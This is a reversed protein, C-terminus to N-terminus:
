ITLDDVYKVDLDDWRAASGTTGTSIMGVKTGRGVATIYDSISVTQVKVGGVWLSADTGVVRVELQQDATATGVGSGYNTPTSAVRKSITWGTGARTVCLHNAHDVALFGFNGGSALVNPKIKLSLLDDAEANGLLVPPSTALDILAATRGNLNVTERVGAKGSAIVGVATGSQQTLAWALGHTEEVGLSGGSVDARTFTDVALAIGSVPLGSIGLAAVPTSWDSQDAGSKGAVQVEIVTGSLGTITFTTDLLGGAATTMNVTTWLGGDERYQAVFETLRCMPFTWMATLTGSVYRASVDLPEHPISGTIASTSDNVTARRAAQWMARGLREVGDRAYHAEDTTAHGSGGGNPIGDAYAVHELTGQAAILAPRVTSYLLAPGEPVVGGAAWPADPDGVFTRAAGILGEYATLYAATTAGGDSEGQHWYFWVEPTLDPYTEALEALAATIHTQATTWLNPGPGPVYGVEWTGQGGAPQYLLGSGGSALNMAAVQTRPGLDRQMEDAIVHLVSIGPADRQTVMPVTLAGFTQTDFNWGLADPRTDIRANIPRGYGEMNSQGMGVLLVLRTKARAAAASADAASAAVLAAATFGAAATASDASADASTDAATASGAAASASSAAATASLDAADAFEEAENVWEAYSPAAPDLSTVDFVDVTGAEPVFVGTVAKLHAHRLKAVVTYTVGTPDLTADDSGPVAQSFEGEADLTVKIRGSLIVKGTDDKIVPASPILEITGSAPDGDLTQYTGTITGTM